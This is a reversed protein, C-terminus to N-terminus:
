GPRRLKMLGLLGLLLGTGTVLVLTWIRNNLHELAVASTVVSPDATSRVPMVRVGDMSKLGVLFSSSATQRTAGDQWGLRISCHSVLFAYRSCKAQEVTVHFDPRFSGQLSLDRQLDSFFMVVLFVASALMILGGLAAKHPDGRQTAHQPLEVAQGGEAPVQELATRRPRASAAPQMPAPRHAINRKGFAATAM